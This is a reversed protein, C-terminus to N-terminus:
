FWRRQPPAPRRSEAALYAGLCQAGGGRLRVAHSAAAPHETSPPQTPPATQGAPRLTPEVPLPRVHSVRVRDLNQHCVTARFPLTPTPGSKFAGNTAAPRLSQHGTIRPWHVSSLSTISVPPLLLAKQPQPPNHGRQGPFASPRAQQPPQGGGVAVHTM